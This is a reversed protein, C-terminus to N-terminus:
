ICTCAFLTTVSPEHGRLFFRRRRQPLRRRWSEAARQDTWIIAFCLLAIQTREANYRHSISITVFLLLYRACAYLHRKTQNLYISHHSHSFVNLHWKNREHCLAEFPIRLIAHSKSLEPRRISIRGPQFLFCARRLQQESSQNNNFMSRVRM